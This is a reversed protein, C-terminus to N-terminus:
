LRTVRRSDPKRPRAVKIEGHRSSTITLGKQLWAQSGRSYVSSSWVVETRITKLRSEGRLFPRPLDVKQRRRIGYRSISNTTKNTETFQIVNTKIRSRSMKDKFKNKEEGKKKKKNIIQQYYFLM